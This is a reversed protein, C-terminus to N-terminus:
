CRTLSPVPDDYGLRIVLAQLSELMCQIIRPSEELAPVVGAEPGAGARPRPDFAGLPLDNRNLEWPPPETPVDGLLDTLEGRQPLEAEM